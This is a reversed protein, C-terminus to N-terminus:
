LLIGERQINLGIPLEKRRDWEEDDYILSSSLADFRNLFEVEIERVAHVDAEKREKVVVLFDYDSKETADGRAHSGFLYIGRINDHLKSRLAEHFYKIKEDDIPDMDKEWKIYKRFSVHRFVHHREVSGDRNRKENYNRSSSAYVPVLGNKFCFDVIYFTAGFEGQVLVYDDTCANNKLFRIIKELNTLNLEGKPNISSWITRIDNPFKVLKACALDNKISDIQKQTLEHNMLCFINLKM